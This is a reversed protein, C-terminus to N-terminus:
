AKGSGARPPVPIDRTRPEDVFLPCDTEHRIEEATPARRHCKPCPVWPDRTRNGAQAELEAIRAAAVQEREIFRQLVDRTANLRHEYSQIGSLALAETTPSPAPHDPGAAIQQIRDLRLELAKVRAIYRDLDSV